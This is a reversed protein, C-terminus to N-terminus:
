YIDFEPATAYAVDLRPIESTYQQVDAKLKIYCIVSLTYFFVGGVASGIILLNFLNTSHHGIGNEEHLEKSDFIESSGRILLIVALFIMISLPILWWILSLLLYGPKKNYIGVLWFVSAIGNLVYIALIAIAVLGMYLGFIILFFLGFGLSEIIKLCGLVIGVSRWSVCGNSQQGNEM